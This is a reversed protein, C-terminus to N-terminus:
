WEVRGPGFVRLASLGRGANFIAEDLVRGVDTGLAQGDLQLRMPFDTGPPIFARDDGFIGMTRIRRHLDGAKAVKVKVNRYRGDSYVRVDAEDGPKLQSIVREVRSLGPMGFMLEADPDRASKTRLDTGNISALRDGEQIGARAAPGSDDVSVVFVGLSDRASGTAAFSLGLTPRDGARSFRMPQYLEKSDVTKIKMTKWQGGTYVRLEVDDGPKVRNLERTLRRAMVGRMEDDGVDPSALRLSVSNIAAIRDGEDLGSKEAPGGPLVSSVLLGLTDRANIGSATTVGIVASPEDGRFGGMDRLVMRQPPQSSATAALVAMALPLYRTAM